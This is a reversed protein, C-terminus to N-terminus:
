IITSRQCFSQIGKMKDAIMTCPLNTALVCQLNEGHIIFSTLLVYYASMYKNFSCIFANFFAYIIKIQEM